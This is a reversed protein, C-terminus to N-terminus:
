NEGIVRWAAVVPWTVTGPTLVVRGLRADAHVFGDEVLVLLHHQHAAYAVALVDGAEADGPGIARVRDGAARLVADTEVEGRLRYSSPM